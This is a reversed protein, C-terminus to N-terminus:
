VCTVFNFDDVSATRRTRNLRDDSSALSITTDFTTATAALHRGSGKWGMGNSVKGIVSVTPEKKTAREDFGPRSCRMVLVTLRYSQLVIILVNKITYFLLNYSFIGLGFCYLRLGLFPGDQLVVIALLGWIESQCCRWQTVSHLLRHGGRRMERSLRPRNSKTTTLVLTFQLLSVTWITLIAYQLPRSDIVPREDFLYFVEMIDFAMGFYVLLLQSLENRTVVGKPLMWRGIILLLLMLQQITYVLTKRDFVTELSMISCVTVNRENLGICEAKSKDLLSASCRLLDLNLLWIPPVVTMLYILVCPSFWKPERGGRKVMSYVTEIVFLGSLVALAWINVNGTVCTAGYVAFLSHVLFLIRAFVAQIGSLIKCIDVPQRVAM